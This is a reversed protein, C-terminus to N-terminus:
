ESKPHHSLILERMAARTPATCTHIAAWPLRQAELAVNESFCYATINRACEALGAKEMLTASIRATRPSFLAIGTIRAAELASIIEPTLEQEGIAYYVVVMTVSIGRPALMKEVDTRTEDGALYLLSSGSAVEGAIRPLLAQVDKMGSIIRTFGHEGAAKATANGVCYVPLSRWNAPLLSLAHAAHRSTLLLASPPTAAINVLPKRAIHLVPGIISHIGFPALENAFFASDDMPRTHWLLNTEAM